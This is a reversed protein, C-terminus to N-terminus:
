PEYIHQSIGRNPLDDEGASPAAPRSESAVGLGHLRWWERARGQSWPQDFAITQLAQELAAASEYRSAPDKALCRMVIEDLQAPIAFESIQSPPTPAAQVHDILLEVSSKADFPPRGSLMWYAVAGLCYLDSRADIDDAGKVAEPSIYRPTGVAIGTKTLDDGELASLQKALGFDLVKVYDYLGGRQTLFINSPKIDRHIIGRGHAEALASCAQVLIFTTREPQIPGFREVLKQLDLGDLYEMVYYFQHDPTRGYDYITISNPHTLTASLQVEREFRAVAALTEPGTVTMVKVATPRRILAHRARYVAGMGGAGLKEELFYNGLKQAEHARKQLSYLARSTLFAVVSVLVIGVGGHILFDRLEGTGGLPEWYAQTEPLLAYTLIPSLIFSGVAILGLILPYRAPSPIFAAYLFLGLTIALYPEEDPRASAMVFAALAINLAVVWFALQQFRRASGKLLYTLALTVAFSALHGLRIWLLWPTLGSELRPRDRLIVGFIIITAVSVTLAIALLMRTRRRLFETLEQEFSLDTAATLRM